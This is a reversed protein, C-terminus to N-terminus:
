DEVRQMAAWSDCRKQRWPDYSMPIHRTASVGFVMAGPHSYARTICHDTSRTFAGGEHCRLTMSMAGM